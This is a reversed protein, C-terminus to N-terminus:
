QSLNTGQRLIMLEKLVLKELIRLLKLSTEFQNNRSGFQSFVAKM